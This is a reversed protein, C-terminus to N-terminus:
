IVLHSHNDYADLTIFPCSKLLASNTAILQAIEVIANKISLSHLFCMKRFVTLHLLQQHETSDGHQDAAHLSHSEESLFNLTQTPQHSTRIDTSKLWNLVRQVQDSSKVSSKRGTEQDDNATTGGFAAKKLQSSRKQSRL